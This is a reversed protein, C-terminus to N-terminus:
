KKNAMLTMMEMLKNINGSMENVRNELQDVKDNDAPPRVPGTFFEPTELTDAFIDEEAEPEVTRVPRLISKTRTVPAKQPAPKPAPSRPTPKTGTSRPPPQQKIPPEREQRQIMTRALLNTRGVSKRRAAVTKKAVNKQTDYQKWLGGLIRPDYLNARVYDESRNINNAFNAIDDEIAQRTDAWSVAYGDGYKKIQIHLSDMKQAILNDLNTSLEGENYKEVFDDYNEIGQARLAGSDLFEALLPDKFFRVVKSGPTMKRSTTKKVKIVEQRGQNTDIEDVFLQNFPVEGGPNVSKKNPTVYTNSAIVIQQVGILNNVGIVFPYSTEMMIGFDNLACVKNSAAAYKRIIARTDQITASTIIGLDLANVYEFKKELDGVDFLFDGVPAVAGTIPYKGQRFLLSMLTALGLSPGSIAIDLDVDGEFMLYISEQLLGYIANATAQALLIQQICDESLILGRTGVLCVTKTGNVAAIYETYAVEMVPGNSATVFCLHNDDEPGIVPFANRVWPVNYTLFGQIFMQQVFNTVENNTYAHYAPYPIDIDADSFVSAESSDYQKPIVDLYDASLVSGTCQYKRVVGSAKLSPKIVGSAKHPEVGTIEYAVDRLFPLATKVVNGLLDTFGSAQYLTENTPVRPMVARGHMFDWDIAKSLFSIKHDAIYQMVALLLETRQLTKSSGTPLQRALQSDPVTEYHFRSNIVINAGPTNITKASAGSIGVFTAPYRSGYQYYECSKMSWSFGVIGGFNGSGIFEISELPGPLFLIQTCTVSSQGGAVVYASAEITDIIDLQDTTWDVNSKRVCTFRMSLTSSTTVLPAYTLNFSIEVNGSIDGPLDGSSVDITKVSVAAFNYGDLAPTSSEYSLLLYNDTNETAETELIRFPNQSEPHHLSVVGESLKTGTLVDINNRKFSPITQFTLNRTPQPDQVDVANFVGALNTNTTSITTQEIKVGASVLRARSYSDAIDEDPPIYRVFTYGGRVTDPVYLSVVRTNDPHAHRIVFLCDSLIMEITQSLSVEKLISPTMDLDPYRASFKWPNVLTQLYTNQSNYVEEKNIVEM